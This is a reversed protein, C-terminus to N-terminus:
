FGKVVELAAYTVIASCGARKLSLLAELMVREGDIYGLQTGAKIMAFEGSVQYGLLPIQYTQKLLHIVDLYFVGPKIMLMDAGEQIDQLAERLSEQLNAPDQQYTLKSAGGLTATSGVADRYPGYLASAYKASYAFLKTHHFHQAELAQRLALIRGDMMDSPGLVDAGAHAYNLGQKVLANVTADNHIDGSICLGDHGHTTYLDLAVDVMVGLQPCADKIARIARCALNDPNWAEQAEESKLSDELCPFLAVCPIGLAEAKKAEEVAMDISYRQVSPLRPIDIRLGQGEVVFLPYIFDSPHLQTEQILARSWADSRMRRNRSLPYQGTFM